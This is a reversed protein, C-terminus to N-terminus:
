RHACHSALSSMRTCTGAPRFWPSSMFPYLNKGQFAESAIVVNFKSGCGDSEDTAVVHMTGPLAARLKAEILAGTVPGEEEQAHGHGHGHDHGKHDHEKHDHSPDTCTSGDDHGHGHGHDHGKHDHSPDSCAAEEKHGHGHDHEKHDHSPHTCTSGDDHGHSHGHDHGGHSHDMGCSPDGCSAAPVSAPASAVQMAASSVEPM